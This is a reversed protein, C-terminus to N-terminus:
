LDSAQITGDDVWEDKWGSMLCHCLMQGRAGDPPSGALVATWVAERLGATDLWPGTSLRPPCPIKCAAFQQKFEHCRGQTAAGQQPGLPVVTTSEGLRAWRPSPATTERPSM